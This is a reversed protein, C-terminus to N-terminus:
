VTTYEIIGIADINITANLLGDSAVDTLDVYGIVVDGAQPSAAVGEIFYLYRCTMVDVGVNTFDISGSDVNGALFAKAPIDKNAYNVSDCINTLTSFTTNSVNPTHAHKVLVGYHTSEDWQLGANQRLRLEGGTVFQLNQIAM